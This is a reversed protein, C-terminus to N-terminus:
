GKLHGRGGRIIHYSSLGCRHLGVYDWSITGLAEHSRTHSLYYTDMLLAIASLSRKLELENFTIGLIATRRREDALAKARDLPLARCKALVISAAIVIDGGPVTAWIASGIM